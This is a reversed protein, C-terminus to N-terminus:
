RLPFYKPQEPEPLPVIPTKPNLIDHVFRHMERLHTRTIQDTSRRAIGRDLDAELEALNGRLITRYEGRGPAYLRSAMLELYARQLNRRWLRIQSGSYIESWIGKRLDALFDAPSYAAAGDMEELETMRSLRSPSVLQGLVWVQAELIHNSEGSPEIRRMIDTRILFEPTAFANENLFRVAQKQRDKPVITFRAGDGVKVKEESAM